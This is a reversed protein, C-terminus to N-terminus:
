VDELRELRCAALSFGLAGLLVCHMLPLRILYARSGAVRTLSTLPNAVLQRIAGAIRCHLLVAEAGRDFAM